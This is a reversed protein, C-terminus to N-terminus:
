CHQLARKNTILINNDSKNVIYFRVPFLAIEESWLVVRYQHTDWKSNYSSREEKICLKQLSSVRNFFKNRIGGDPFRVHVKLMELAWPPNMHM